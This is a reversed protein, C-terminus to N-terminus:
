RIVFIRYGAEWTLDAIKNKPFIGFIVSGSGSMSAYLAGAAYIKEKIAALSPHAAFVPAEFDNVLQGKWASVPQALIRTLPMEPKRPMVQSYAWQTNIAIPPYVLLFSYDKLSLEYPQLAEGRATGLCPRDQTFFACDSGLQSAYDSLQKQSLRLHFQENLLRLVFAADSSGGGLGAGMPIQKHLHIRVSPLHPIDKHLAQYAKACLNEAPQGPIPLGSFSMEFRDARLIELADHLPLPYFLTEIDHFGDPRRAVVSLGLNIKCHPFVILSFQIKPPSCSCM